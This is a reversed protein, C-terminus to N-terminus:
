TLPSTKLQDTYREYLASYRDRSSRITASVESDRARDGEIAVGKM